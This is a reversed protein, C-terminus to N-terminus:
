PTVGHATALQPLFDGWALITGRGADMRKWSYRYPKAITPYTRTLDDLEVDTLTLSAKQTNQAPDLHFVGSITAPEEFLPDESSDLISVVFVVTWLAADVCSNIPYVAGETYPAAYFPGVSFTKDESKFLSGDGGITTQIAM